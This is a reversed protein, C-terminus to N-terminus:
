VICSVEALQPDAQLEEGRLVTPLITELLFGVQGDQPRSNLTSVAVLGSDQGTVWQFIRDSPQMRAANEKAPGFDAGGPQQEGSQIRALLNDRDPNSVFLCNNHTIYGNLPSGALYRVQALGM